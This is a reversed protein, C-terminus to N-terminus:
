NKPGAKASAKAIDDEYVAAGQMVRFASRLAMDSPDVKLRRELDDRAAEFNGGKRNIAEVALKRFQSDWAMFDKLQQASVDAPPSREIRDLAPTYPKRQELSDVFLSMPAESKGEMGALSEGINMGKIYAYADRLNQDNPQRYLADDLRKVAVDLGRNSAEIADMVLNATPAGLHRVDPIKAPAMVPASGGKAAAADPKKAVAAPVAVSKLGLGGADPPASFQDGKSFRPGKETDSLTVSKLGLGGGYRVGPDSKAGLTSGGKYPSAEKLKLDGGGSTGDFDSGKLSQLAELKSKVFQQQRAREAAQKRTEHEAQEAQRRMEEEAEMRQREALAEYDPPRYTPAPAVYGGGGGPAAPTRRVSPEDCIGSRDCTSPNLGQQRFQGRGSECAELSSYPGATGTSRGMVRICGSNPCYWNLSYTCAAWVPSPAIVAFTAAAGLAAIFFRVAWAYRVVKSM